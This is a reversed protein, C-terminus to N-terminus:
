GVQGNREGDRQIEREVAKAVGREGEMMAKGGMRM